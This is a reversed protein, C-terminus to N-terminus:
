KVPIDLSLHLKPLEYVLALDLSLSIYVILWRLDLPADLLPLEANEAQPVNKVAGLM